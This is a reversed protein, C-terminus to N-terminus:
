PSESGAGMLSDELAPANEPPFPHKDLLGVVLGATQLVEFLQRSTASGFCFPGELLQADALRSQLAFGFGSVQDIELVGLRGIPRHDMVQPELVIAANGLDVM